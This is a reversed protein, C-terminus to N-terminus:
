SSGSRDDPWRVAIQDYKEYVARDLYAAAFVRELLQRRAVNEITTPLQVSAEDGLDAIRLTMAYPCERIAVEEFRVLVENRGEGLAAQFAVSQPIQHAFHEQRHVHQGNLWM